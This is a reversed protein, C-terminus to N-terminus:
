SGLEQRGIQVITDVLQKALKEGKERSAFTAKYPVGSKPIIDRPPPFLSYAPMRETHDDIIRDGRVLQPAFYQMLSTVTTAGHEIEWGPFGAEAFLVDLM